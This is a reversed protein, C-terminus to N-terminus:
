PGCSYGAVLYRGNPSFGLCNIVGRLDHAVQRTTGAALDM